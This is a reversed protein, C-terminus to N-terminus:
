EDPRKRRVVLPADNRRAERVIAYEKGTWYYDITQLASHCEPCCHEPVEEADGANMLEKLEANNFLKGFLSMTRKHHWASLELLHADDLTNAEKVVYKFLEAYGEDFVRGDVIYSDGTIKHWVESIKQRIAPQFLVEENENTECPIPRETLLLIHEHPHWKGSNKGIKIEFTRVGGILGFDDWLKKRGLLRRVKRCLATYDPLEDMDRLTLTLMYSHLRHAEQYKRLAPALTTALRKAKRRACAACLPDKCTMLAMDKHYDCGSAMCSTYQMRQGCAAMTNARREDFKRIRKSMAVSRQKKDLIGEMCERSPVGSAFSSAAAAVVVSSGDVASSFGSSVEMTDLVDVVHVVDVAQEFEDLFSLAVFSSTKNDTAPQKDRRGETNQM